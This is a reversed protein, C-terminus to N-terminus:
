VWIGNNAIVDRFWYASKKPIRRLTPYEVRVIGFRRGYGSAWEFNDMLSWVFYGRLDVGAEVAENAAQIHDRLFNIRGDDRVYGSEDPYDRFACGNETLLMKPNGYKEKIDLLVEKLGSPDIGWNMETVGWGAASRPELRAKILLSEVDHSVNFSKYYDIGLFDMPQRILDLDGVQINPQHPGIWDFYDLPYTGKYLPDLFLSSYEDYVRKCASVDADSDSAPRFVDINLIIGISGHYGAQRFLQVTKGHSLLLHHITQYAQSYDCIGPAFVGTAYGLFAIVWPECHTVWWDIRDGFRSFVIEAYDVFWNVMERNSWGGLDQLSQPFDWHNLVAFPTIGVELLRDIMRDYFGLGKKNVGGRGLPLVRSWAISFSYLKLGLDNMMQIDQPMRQFHDCAVDGNDGNTINFPRHSFRDWVSEGKGDKNWAGEIQYSSAAAGWLFQEPFKLLESM